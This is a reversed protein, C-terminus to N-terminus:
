LYLSKGIGTWEGDKNAMFLLTIMVVKQIPNAVLKATRATGRCLTGTMLTNRWGVVGSIFMGRHIYVSWEVM